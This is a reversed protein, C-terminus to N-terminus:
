QVNARKFVETTFDDCMQLLVAAPIASLPVSQSEDDEPTAITFACDPVEFAQLDVVISTKM